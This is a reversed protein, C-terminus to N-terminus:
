DFARELQGGASPRNMWRKMTPHFTGFHMALSRQAAPALIPKCRTMRTLTLRACSGAPSTPESPCSLWTRNESGIASRAFTRVMVQIGRLFSECIRGKRCGSAAWLTRNRDALGRASFHQAPTFTVSLGSLTGGTTPTHSDWWDLEEVRRLGHGRLLSGNGLGTIFLPHFQKELRRLTPLDLHDYHNHSLLVVQVPPLDWFTVAPPRVRRPGAFAVPSARDSRIPDTLVNLGDAFQLLFTAHGVFTAAMQGAEIKTPLSPKVIETEVNRPWPKTGGQLKWRLIDKLTRDATVADPNYFKHGDFHDSVPWAAATGLTSREGALGTRINM